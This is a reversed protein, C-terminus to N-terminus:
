DIELIFDEDSVCKFEYAQAHQIGTMEPFTAEKIVLRYVGFLNTLASQIELAENRLFLDHLSKVQDEPYVLKSQYNIAIGRITIDYDEVAILEKVTGRRTSGVLATELINKKAVIIISPENPLLVGGLQIPMFFPVGTAPNNASLSNRMNVFETGEDDASVPLDEFPLEERVGPQDAKSSDFPKGRGIGFTKEFIGTISFELQAM